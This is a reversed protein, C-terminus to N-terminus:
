EVLRIARPVGDAGVLLDTKVNEAEGDLPLNIGLAVLSARPVEVRIVQTGLAADPTDPVHALAYFEGLDVPVEPQQPEAARRTEKKRFVKASVSEPRSAREPATRVPAPPAPEVVPAAPPTVEEVVTEPPLEKVYAIDHQPEGGSFLTLAFVAATIAMAALGGSLALRMQWSHLSGLPLAEGSQSGIRTRISAYLEPRSVIREIEDARTMAARLLSRGIKDLDENQIKRHKM